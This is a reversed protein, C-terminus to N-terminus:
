KFPEGWKFVGLLGKLEEVKSEDLNGIFALTLHWNQQPVLKEEKYRSLGPWSQVKLKKKVEQPLPIGIFYRGM